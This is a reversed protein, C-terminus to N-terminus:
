EDSDNGEASKVKCYSKLQGLLFPIAKVQELIAATQAKDSEITNFPETSRMPKIFAMVYKEEMGGAADRAAALKADIQKQRLITALADLIIADDNGLMARAEDITSPSVIKGSVPLDVTEFSDNIITITRNFSDSKTRAMRKRKETKAPKRVLTATANNSEMNTFIRSHKAM